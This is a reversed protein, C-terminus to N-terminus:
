NFYPSSSDISYMGFGVSFLIIFGCVASVPLWGLSAVSDKDNEKMFFYVGLLATCIIMFISSPILLLRRGLRDVIISSVFVSIVQMVGVIITAVSSDIGGSDASKAADFISKTFFIVANIGSMQQFFMLGLSIFIAKQTARRNLAQILSIKNKREEEHQEQLDALEQSCDYHAGRLWKLSKEAAAKNGKSIYYTPTEPMFMFIAGFILPIAACILNLAFITTISGIVYALLVGTVLMLQFYSGLSGRISAQAIEGTYTPAAVCFAGGSIGLLFRGFLLMIVNSAFTVLIWGITFPIVLVLMTLKRGVLQLIPGIFLCVFAAGLTVLSGIWAFNSESIEFKYEAEDMTVNTLRSEIPSSWGLTAGAALAGGTATILDCLLCVCLKISQLLIFCTCWKFKDVCLHIEIAIILQILHIEIVFHLCCFM